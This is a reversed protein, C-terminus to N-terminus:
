RYCFWTTAGRLLDFLSLKSGWPAGEEFTLMRTDLDKKVANQLVVKVWDELKFPGRLNERDCWIKVPETSPYFGHVTRMDTEIRLLKEQIEDLVPEFKAIEEELYAIDEGISASEDSSSDDPPTYTIKMTIRM